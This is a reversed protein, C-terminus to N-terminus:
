PLSQFLTMNVTAPDSSTILRASQSRAVVSSFAAKLRRVESGYDRPAYEIPPQWYDNLLADYWCDDEANFYPIEIDDLEWRAELGAKCQILHRDVSEIRGHLRGPNTHRLLVTGCGCVM